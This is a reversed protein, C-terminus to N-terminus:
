ISLQGKFESPILRNQSWLLFFRMSTPSPHHPIVYEQSASFRTSLSCLQQFFPDLVTLSLEYCAIKQICITFLVSKSYILANAMSLSHHLRIMIIIIEGRSTVFEPYGVAKWLLSLCLSLLSKSLFFMSFSPFFPMFLLPFPAHTRRSSGARDTRRSFPASSCLTTFHLSVAGFVGRKWLLQWNSGHFPSLPGVRSRGRSFLAANKM